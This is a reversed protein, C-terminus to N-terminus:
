TMYKTQSEHGLLRSHATNAVGPRYPVSSLSAGTHPFFARGRVSRRLSGRTRGRTHPCTVRLCCGQQTHDREDITAATNPAVFHSQSAFATPRSRFPSNTNNFTKDKFCHCLRSNSAIRSTAYVGADCYKANKKLENYRFTAIHPSLKVHRQHRLLFRQIKTTFKYSHRKCM